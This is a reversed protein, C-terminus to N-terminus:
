LHLGVLKLDVSDVTLDLLSLIGVELELALLREADHRLHIVLICLFSFVLTHTVFAHVWALLRVVLVSLRLHQWLLLFVVMLLQLLLLHLLLLIHCHSGLHLLLLLLRWYRRVTTIVAWGLGWISTRIM